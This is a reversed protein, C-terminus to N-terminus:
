SGQRQTQDRRNLPYLSSGGLSWVSMFAELLMEKLRMLDEPASYIGYAWWAAKSQAETWSQHGSNQGRLWMCGFVAPLSQLSLVQPFLSCVEPLYAGRGQGGVSGVIYKQM